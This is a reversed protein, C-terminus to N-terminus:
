NMLAKVLLTTAAALYINDNNVVYVENRGPRPLGRARWNKM